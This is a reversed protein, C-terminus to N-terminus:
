RAARRPVARIGGRRSEAEVREVDALSYLYRRPSLKIFPLKGTNRMRGLTRGSCRWRARLEANDLKAPAAPRLVDDPIEAVAEVVLGGLGPFTLRVPVRM